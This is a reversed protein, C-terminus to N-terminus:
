GKGAGDGTEEVLVAAALQFGSSLRQLDFMEFGHLNNLMKM